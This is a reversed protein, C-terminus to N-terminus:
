KVNRDIVHLNNIYYYYYYVYKVLV